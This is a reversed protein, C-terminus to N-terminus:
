WPLMELLESFLTKDNEKGNSTYKPKYKTDNILAFYFNNYDNIKDDGFDWFERKIDQIKTFFPVQKTRDNVVIDQM